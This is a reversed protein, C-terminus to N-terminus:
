DLALCRCPRPTGHGGIYNIIINYINSLNPPPTVRLGHVGLVMFKTSLEIARLVQKSRHKAAPEPERFENDSVNAEIIARAMAEEDESNEAKVISETMVSESDAGSDSESGTSSESEEGSDSGDEAIDIEAESEEEAELNENDICIKLNPRGGTSAM